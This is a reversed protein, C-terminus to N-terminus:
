VAILLVAQLLELHSAALWDFSQLILILILKWHVHQMQETIGAM